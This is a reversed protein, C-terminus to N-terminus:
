TNGAHQWFFADLGAGGLLVVFLAKETTTVDLRGQVGLDICEEDESKRRFCEM